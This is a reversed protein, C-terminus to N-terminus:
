SFGYHIVRPDQDLVSDKLQPVSNKTICDYHASITDRTYDRPAAANCDHVVTGDEETDNTAPLSGLDYQFSRLVQIMLTLQPFGIQTIGAHALPVDSLSTHMYKHLFRHINHMDDETWQIEVQEQTANRGTSPSPTPWQQRGLEAALVAMPIDQLETSDGPRRAFLKAISAAERVDAERVPHPMRLRAPCRPWNACGVARRIEAVDVVRVDVGDATLVPGYILYEIPWDTGLTPVHFVRLARDPITHTDIVAIYAPLYEAMDGFWFWGEGGTYGGLAFYVASEFNAAWSSFRSDALGSLYGGCLHSHRLKVVDATDLSRISRPLDPEKLFAHPVFGGKANVGEIRGGSAQHFGRFLFRPVKESADELFQLCEPQDIPGTYVM